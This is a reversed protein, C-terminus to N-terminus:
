ADKSSHVRQSCNTTHLQICLVEVPIHDLGLQAPIADKDGLAARCPHEAACFDECGYMGRQARDKGSHQRVSLMDGGIVIGPHAERAGGDAVALLCTWLILHIRVFDLLIKKSLGLM